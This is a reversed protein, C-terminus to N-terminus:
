WVHRVGSVRHQDAGRRRMARPLDFIGDEHLASANTTRFPASAHVLRDLADRSQCLGKLTAFALGLWSFSRPLADRVFQNCSMCFGLM